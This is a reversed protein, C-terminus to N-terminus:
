ILPDARRECVRDAAAQRGGDVGDGVPPATVALRDITAQHPRRNSVIPLKQAHSRGTHTISPGAEQGM